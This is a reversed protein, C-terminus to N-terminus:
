DDVGAAKCLFRVLPGGTRCLREYHDLFGPATADKEALKSLGIFDKRKLDEILPHEPDFGRPPRKLSDGGLEFRRASASAAPSGGGGRRTTSSPTASRTSRRPQRPALHRRRRLRRRARPASLLGARPRRQGGPPPVPHRDPDQLPEQGELLPRRSPHSVAIGKGPRPDANFHRSIRRLRPAFDTIFQQAPHLLDKEYRARNAEFWDRDNNRALDRLFAFLAPHFPSPTASMTEEESPGSNYAWSATACYRPERRGPSGCAEMSRCDRSSRPELCQGAIISLRLM